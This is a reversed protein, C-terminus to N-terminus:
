ADQVHRDIVDVVGLAVARQAQATSAGIHQSALVRPHQGLPSTWEDAQTAGPEDPFVDLAAWIRGDNLAALLAPADVLDARSTNVLLADDRLAAIVDAGVMGRTSSGAPAHLTLVDVQGALKVMSEDQAIHLRQVVRRTRQSAGPRGVTRLNMGFAAAREAVVAGIAGLGVIGLTMEALGRAGQALGKKDWTGARSALVNDVIRRDWALLLAFTLEAVALANAGPVNAVAVASAQAAEQDITNLGSGARVVLRLADAAAFTAATVKTSRVVLVEAEGIQQPLDDATLGPRVDCSHGREQLARVAVPDLADAVLVRM